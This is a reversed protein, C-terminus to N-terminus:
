NYHYPNSNNNKNIQIKSHSRARAINNNKIAELVFKKKKTEM